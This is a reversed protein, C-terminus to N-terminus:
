MCVCGNDKVPALHKDGITGAESLEGNLLWILVYEESSEAGPLLVDWSKDVNGEKWLGVPSSDAHGYKRGAAPCYVAQPQRVCGM